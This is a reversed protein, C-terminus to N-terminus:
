AGARLIRRLIKGSASKPIAEVFTVARLQKYRAVQGAVHAMVQEATLSTGPRQVVFAVPVEGADDDPRGIVACDAIDPHTLLLAELEAPAVQFGKVKILEKVRDQIFLYGADDIMGLDGTHLWGDADITQRTADPNGLYGHMVQPGRICLEGATGAAADTGTEPDVIRAETNPLLLGAAGPRATGSGSFHSVPSLETMGYGQAVTCGLREACAAELDAGLPAAGSIVLELASLDHAAVAPHRALALVVPPVVFLRRMRHTAILGLAVALDFRPLTVLTTGRWLQLNLLVEMGYIHFFPLIALTVTGPAPTLIKDIQVMNAVLNRHTLMVGKPLGTTGSSYPMVMIASSPDLPHQGVAPRDLFAAWATADTGMGPLLVIETVATGVAARAAVEQSAAAVILLSAGSDTLQHHLEQWTSAPNATTLTAAALATGYFVVAFDPCNPAMLAVVRGPGLGRAGLAAAFRGARDILAAGTTVEGTLGDILAPRDPHACLGAFVVEAVSLDPIAVPDYRSHYIM